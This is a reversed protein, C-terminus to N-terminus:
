GACARVVPELATVMGSAPYQVEVRDGVRNHVYPERNSVVILQANELHLQVVQQLGEPTWNERFDAELRQTDEIERLVQRVQSLVGQAPHTAAKGGLAFGRIDSVLSVVWGRLVAWAVLLCLLLVVAGSVALFAVLYDRARSQRRDIFGLDHVVVVSYGEASYKEMPFRAVHLLSQSGQVLEFAAVRPSAQPCEVEKPIGDSRYLVRSGPACVALAVLRRDSAIRALYRRIQPESHTEILPELGEEISNFVLQARMDVDAQFWETLVREAVPIALYTAAGFAVLLPIGFKWLVNRLVSPDGRVPAPSEFRLPDRRPSM